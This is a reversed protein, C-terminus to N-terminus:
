YLNLDKLVEIAAISAARAAPFGAYVAAQLIAEDLEGVTLGNTIAIRIHNKLEDTARLAILVGITILSRHKKDLGERGWVGGIRIGHFARDHGFRVEWKRYRQANKGSARRWPNGSLGKLRKRHVGEYLLAKPNAIPKWDSFAM